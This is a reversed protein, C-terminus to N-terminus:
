QTCRAIATLMDLWSSAPFLRAPFAPDPTEVRKARLATIYVSVNPHDAPHINNLDGVLAHMQNSHSHLLELIAQMEAVRYQEREQNQGAQLHTAFLAVPTGEWLIVIELLTKSQVPLRHNETRIM